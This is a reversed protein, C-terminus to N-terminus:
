KGLIQSLLARIKKLRGRVFADKCDLEAVIEARTCGQLRLRFVETEPEDLQALLQAIVDAIEAAEEPTPERSEAVDGLEDSEREPKRKKAAHHEVHKLVKRRAIQALLNWLAGTHDIQFRQARVGRYFSRLASQVADEPDERRGFRKGLEKQVLVCLRQRYRRDLEHFASSAAANLRRVFESSSSPEPMEGGELTKGM